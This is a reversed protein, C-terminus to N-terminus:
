QGLKKKKNEKHKQLPTASQQTNQEIAFELLIERKYGYHSHTTYLSLKMHTFSHIESKPPNPRSQFWHFDIAAARTKHWLTINM